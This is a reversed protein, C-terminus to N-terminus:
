NVTLWGCPAAWVFYLMHACGLSVITSTCCSNERCCRRLLDMIKTLCPLTLVLAAVWVMAHIVLVVIEAKFQLLSFVGAMARLDTPTASFLTRLRTNLLRLDASELFVKTEALVQM